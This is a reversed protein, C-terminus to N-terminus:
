NRSTIGTLGSKPKGPDKRDRQINDIQWAPPVFLEGDMGKQSILMQNISPELDKPLVWSVGEASKLDARKGIPMLGFLIFAAALYIRYESTIGDLRQIGKSQYLFTKVIKIDTEDASEYERGSVAFCAKVAEDIDTLNFASTEPM